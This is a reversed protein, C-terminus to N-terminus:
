LWRFANFEANFDDSEKEGICVHLILLLQLLNQGSVNAGVAYMLIFNQPDEDTAM